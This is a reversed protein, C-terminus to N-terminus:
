GAVGDPVACPLWDEPTLRCTGDVLIRRGIPIMLEVEVPTRLSVSDCDGPDIGTVTVIVTERFEVVEAELSDEDICTLHDVDVTVVTDTLQSPQVAAIRLPVRDGPSALRVVVFAVLGVVVIVLLVLEPRRNRFSPRRRRTPTSETGSPDTDTGSM